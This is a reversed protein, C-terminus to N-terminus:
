AAQEMEREAYVRKMKEGRQMCKSCFNSGFQEVAADFAAAYGHRYADWRMDIIAFRKEQESADEAVEVEVEFEDAVADFGHAGSRMQYANRKDSGCEIGRVIKAEGVRAIVFHAKSGSFGVGVVGRQWIQKM